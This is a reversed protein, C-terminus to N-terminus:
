GVFELDISPRESRCQYFYLPCCDLYENLIPLKRFSMEVSGLSEVKPQLAFDFGNILEKAFETNFLLARRDSSSPDKIHRFEELSLPSIPEVSLASVNRFLEISSKEKAAQKTKAYGMGLLAGFKGSTSFGEVFSLVGFYGATSIMQFHHLRAPSEGSGLSVSIDKQDLKKIPSGKAHCYLAFRELYEISANEKALAEEFHGAVGTSSIGNSDCVFREIAECVAKGLAADEDRSSGRGSYTVGNLSVTVGIDTFGPFHNEIWTLKTARLDLAKRNTLIWDTLKQQNAMVSQESLNKIFPHEM